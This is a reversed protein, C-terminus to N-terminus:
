DIYTNKSKCEPRTDGASVGNKKFREQREALYADGVKFGSNGCRACWTFGCDICHNAM